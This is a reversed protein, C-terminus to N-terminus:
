VSTMIISNNKLTGRLCLYINYYNNNNNNDNHLTNRNLKNKNIRLVNEESQIRLVRKRASEDLLYTMELCTDMAKDSATREVTRVYRYNINNIENIERTIYINNFYLLLLYLCFFIIFILGWLNSDYEVDGQIKMTVVMSQHENSHVTPSWIHSNKKNITINYLDSEYTNKLVLFGSSYFSQPIIFVYGNEGIDNNKNNYNNKITGCKICEIPYIREVSNIGDKDEKEKNNTQEMIQLSLKFDLHSYFDDYINDFVMYYTDASNIHINLSEQVSNMSSKMQIYDAQNKTEFQSFPVSGKFLFFNVGQISV